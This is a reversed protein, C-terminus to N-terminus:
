GSKLNKLDEQAEDLVKRIDREFGAPLAPPEYADHRRVFAANFETSRCMRDTGCSNYARRPACALAAQPGGLLALKESM